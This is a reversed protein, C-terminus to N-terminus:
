ANDTERKQLKKLPHDLLESMLKGLAVWNGVVIGEDLLDYWGATIGHYKPYRWVVFFLYPHQDPEPNRLVSVQRILGSGYVPHRIAISIKRDKKDM